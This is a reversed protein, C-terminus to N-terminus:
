IEAFSTITKFGHNEPLPANGPWIKLLALSFGSSLKRFLINIGVGSVTSSSHAQMSAKEYWKASSYVLKKTALQLLFM